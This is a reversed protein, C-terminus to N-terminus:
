PEMGWVLTGDYYLGVKDWPAFALKTPDFSYDNTEDFTAFDSKHFRIQIEGSSQGPLLNTAGALNIQLYHDTMEGSAAVFTGSVNGSGIKAYDCNFQQTQSGNPELTYWYRISLASVPVSDMTNNVINFHPKIESNVANTDAAKYELVLGTPPAGGV